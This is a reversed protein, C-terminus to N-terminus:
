MGIYSRAKNTQTFNAISQHHEVSDGVAVFNYGLQQCADKDWNGDGFYTCPCSTKVGAKSTACTMIDIRSIHDNSSCMPLSDFPIGASKLKLTASEYWGGTAISVIVNDISQLYEIFSGAGPIEQIPTATIAHKLDALFLQKIKNETNEIDGINNADFFEHLIGSDTVNRYQSWNAYLPIGTVTEVARCFIEDDVDTSAVLTGDIDFMVHHM